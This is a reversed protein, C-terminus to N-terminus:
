HQKVTKILFFPEQNTFEEEQKSKTKALLQSQKQMQGLLFCVFWFFGL